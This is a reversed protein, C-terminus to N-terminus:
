QGGGPNEPRGCDSKDGRLKALGHPLTKLIGQLNEVAARRSGPLNVILTSKRIGAVARSLAAHPTQVRSAARMAEALGPTERDLARRTAEPTVDTPAFGTGGVTVVLDIGHGDCYHLLQEYIVEEKDPVVALRYVAAGLDAELLHVTAPGATDEAAGRSCRDSITLVVAQLTEREVASAITVPDGARLTGGVEVRAFWGLRPMICDGMTHYIHCPTHCTKGLQSLRLVGEEGVRLRTGLGCDKLSLGAIVLNEGFDGPQVTLDQGRSFDRIDEGTLLSVQRHWSGAHVDGVLGSDAVLIGEPVPQKQGKHASICIAEVRATM